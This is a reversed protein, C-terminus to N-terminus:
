KKKATNGAGPYGQMGGAAGRMQGAMDAQSKPADPAATGKGLNATKENDESCGIVLVSLGLVGAGVINRLSMRM